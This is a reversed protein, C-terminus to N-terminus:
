LHHRDPKAASISASAPRTSRGLRGSGQGELSFHVLGDKRPWPAGVEIPTGDFAITSLPLTERVKWSELEAVRVKLRDLRQALTLSM